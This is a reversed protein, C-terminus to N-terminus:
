KKFVALAIGVASTLAVQLGSFVNTRNRVDVLQSSLEGRMVEIELRVKEIGLDTKADIKQILQMIADGNKEVARLRNEHDNQTKITNDVFIEFKSILVKVDESTIVEKAPKGTM